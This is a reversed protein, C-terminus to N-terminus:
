ASLGIGLILLLGGATIVFLSLGIVLAAVAQGRNKPDRRGADIAEKERYAIWAGIPATICCFLGCISLVLATTAQSSESYYGPYDVGVPTLPPTPPAAPFGGVPRPGETWASGDWYRETNPPDGEAHYWGPTASDSM